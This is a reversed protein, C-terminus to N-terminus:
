TGSEEEVAYDRLKIGADIIDVDEVTEAQFESFLLFLFPLLIKM